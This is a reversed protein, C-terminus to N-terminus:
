HPKGSIKPTKSFDKAVEESKQTENIIGNNDPLFPVWAFGGNVDELEEKKLEEIKKESM